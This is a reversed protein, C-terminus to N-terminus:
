VNIRECLGDIEKLDLGPHADSNTFIDRLMPAINGTELAMQLLRLGTLLADREEATVSVTVYEEIVEGDELPRLGADADIEFNDYESVDGTALWEGEYLFSRALSQADERTEADVITEYYVLADHSKRVIFKPM